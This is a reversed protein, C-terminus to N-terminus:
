FKRHPIAGKIIEECEKLAHLVKNRSRILQTILFKQKDKSLQHIKLMCAISPIPPSMAAPDHRFEERSTYNVRILKREVKLIADCIAKHKREDESAKEAEKYFDEMLVKLVGVENFLPTLDFVEGAVDRYEGLYKEMSDLMKRSDIYLIGANAMKLVGALYLRTDRLFIEEDVLRMDDDETHWEINGGCGYVEYYGMEKMKQKGMTSSLMFYSTIGINSFSYDGARNPRMWKPEIGTVEKVLETCFSDVDETWMIGDYANANVCGTSECNVQAICNDYLEMAYQDAFWTSGAYRGTSHGPWWAIWVSRKLKHRNSELVRAIELLSADGTANDGIGAHWSDMHGHLLIFKEPESCGTIKALVLPCTKWGFDLSTRVAVRAGDEKIMSILMEGDSNNISVVPIKMINHTDDLGPTGWVTTCIGEHIKEGPQVFIAAVGENKVIDNVKDSSPMGECIVIKGRPDADFKLRYEYEDSVYPPRYSSAYILEGDVWKDYTSMSYSPTKACIDINQGIIKLEARKPTSLFIEPWLIEHSVGFEKLKGSVYYSANKEDDSGSHRMLNKFRDLLLMPEEFNVQDLILKDDATLICDSM